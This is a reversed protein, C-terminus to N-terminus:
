YVDTAGYMHADIDNTLITTVLLTTM